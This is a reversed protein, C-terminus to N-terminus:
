RKRCPSVMLSTAIRKSVVTSCSSASFGPISGFASSTPRRIRTRQALM